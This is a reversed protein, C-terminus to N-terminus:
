WGLPLVPPAVVRRVLLAAITLTLAAVTANILHSVWPDSVRGWLGSYPQFALNVNFRAPTLLRALLQNALWFGLALPIAQLGFGNQRVSWGGALPPVTHCLVSTLTTTHTLAVDLVYGPLGVGVQFLFAAAVVWPWRMAIGVITVLSAVHCAWLMEELPEGHMLKRGVHALLTLVIAAIALDRDM